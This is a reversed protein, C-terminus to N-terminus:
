KVAAKFASGAKFHPVTVEAIQIPEKTRPNVGTRAVRNRCEFSGFGVIQVRRGNTLEAMVTDTFATLVAEADKRALDTKEAIRTILEQKNM